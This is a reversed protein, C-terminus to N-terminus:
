IQEAEILARYSGLPCSFNKKIVRKVLYKRDEDLQYPICICSNSCPKLEKEQIRFTTGVVASKNNVGLTILAPKIMVVVAKENILKCYLNKNGISVITYSVNPKLKGLCPKFHTCSICEESAGLYKFSYGIEAVYKSVLTYM